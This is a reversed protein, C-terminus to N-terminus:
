SSSLDIAADLVKEFAADVISEGYKTMFGGVTLAMIVVVMLLLM